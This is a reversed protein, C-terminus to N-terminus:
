YGRREEMIKAQEIRRQLVSVYEDIWRKVNPDDEGERFALLQRRRKDLHLSEPGTWGESSFNTILNTRVDEREGYRILIQRAWCIRDEERFLLKPVFTALYWARNEIDEDVWEWVAEPPVLSLAGEEERGQFDEGRLWGKISYAHLGIPPGLYETVRAWTEEPHQQLIETLVSHTKSRFGALITGGLGFHELMTDALQLSSSPYIKVFAKGILTWYYSAMRDRTLIDSEEFLSPNTLVVLTLAEPLTHQPDRLYYGSYLALAIGAARSTPQSVLFEIWKRFTDESLDRSLGGYAFRQLHGIDAAGQEVLRLTRMARKDSLTGLRWTLEPVWGKLTEDRSFSDMLDEWQQQDQEFLTRLYGGLFYASGNEGVNRQAGIILPLLAFNEDREGLEYGFRYGNYAETTVLWSLEPLLKETDEVAQQALDEIWQQIRDKKEDLHDESINMGVYRELLSSFDTGILSEQLREWRETTEEPLREADYRLVQIILELVQEKDVHSRQSLAAVTDIVMESLSKFWALSRANRLLVDAGERKEDEPLDDLKNFLYQWVERYADFLEGYTKPAWLEPEKGLLPSDTVTGVSVRQLARDCARLALNRRALSSSELAEKLIPLREEPPAGTRSLARHESVSFLDVFVGSANNGWTENEAEGLALLLRAADAFLTRWKAIEELSWVVDRRGREFQLLQERDWTGITSKLCELAGEPDAKALFRFFRPGLGINLSEPNQQFLGQGGLLARAQRFAPPSGAAYEFMEFFWNILTPPLGTLEELSFGEGYTDWWDIWLRIHLLKPTIYLTNEGQLIKRDRLTAVIEQFRRWTIQPDSERVLESVARAEEAVPAGYGFRKFLAIHRLVVRRQRVEQSDPDDLGVIYREWVDVTGPSKLLDEPNSILNSGIVHAVRPSGSCERSWVDARDKPVGYGQIIESIQADQLPPLDFYRIGSSDDKENYISIMRVRPSHHRFRNWVYARTDPDCDDLVLIVSFGGRSIETMLDSDRFLTAACYVVLPRLDDTDTAELILRTKGIGAEGWIRIHIPEEEHRLATRLDSILEEQESGAVFGKRMEDHTAWEEHTEFRSTSRRNVRLALAPFPRLFGILNNIGWVDVQPDLYGCEELNHKLHEVADRRQSVVLDQGFCVLVYRGGEDLSDRISRGLNELSPPNDGFLERRIQSEQWPSFSAGAKIQYANHGAAIFISKRLVTVDEVSADVGGDPVTIWSSVNIRSLPVGIRTAEAWLLERFLEVAEEPNLFMLHENRVTLITDIM